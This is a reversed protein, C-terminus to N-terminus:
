AGSERIAAIISSTSWGAQMPVRVVAGGWSRVESAGVIDADVYESGKVLVDPRVQLIVELPTPKGFITAAAVPRLAAILAARGAAPVLPRSPGKLARVGADDNVAVLLRDALGAAAALSYLHGPHLLDFCGNTFAITLGADRQAQAWVALECRELVRGRDVVRANM